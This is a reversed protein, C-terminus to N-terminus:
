NIKRFFEKYKDYKRKMFLDADKYIYEMFKKNEKNSFSRILGNRSDHGSLIIVNFKIECNNELYEKMGICFNYSSMISTIFRKRSIKKSNDIYICACGDGDFYGRIFHSVLKDDLFKPFQLSFTKNSVLGWKQVSKCMYKSALILSIMHREVGDEKNTYYNELM